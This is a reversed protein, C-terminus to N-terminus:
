GGGFLNKRKRAFFFFPGESSGDLVAARVVKSVRSFLKAGRTSCM